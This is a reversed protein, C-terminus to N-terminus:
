LPLSDLLCTIKKNFSDEGFLSLFKEKNATNLSAVSSLGEVKIKSFLISFDDANGEGIWEIDDKFCKEFFTNKTSIIRSANQIYEFMKSPVSESDFTESYPRPNIVAYAGKQYAANEDKSVQGLLHLNSFSPFNEKQHGAVYLDIDALNAKGFSDILLKTGYKALLTGGFYFYPKKSEYPQVDNPVVLGEIVQHPKRSLGYIELLRHTLSVAGDSSLALSLLADAKSSRISTINKPNDTLIAIRPAHLKKKAYISTRSLAENLPDYLIATIDKPLRKVESKLEELALFKQFLNKPHQVYIHTENDIPKTKKTDFPVLTLALVQYEKSLSHIVNSHFNQNSPNSILFGNKLYFDYDRPDLATTLYLIKKM